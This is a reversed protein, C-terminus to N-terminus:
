PRLLRQEVAHSQARRAEARLQASEGLVRRYQERLADWEARTVHRAGDAKSISM